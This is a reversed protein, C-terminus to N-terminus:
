LSPSLWIATQLEMAPIEEGNAEETIKIALRGGGPITVESGPGWYDYALRTVPLQGGIPEEFNYLQVWVKAADSPSPGEWTFATFDTAYLPRPANPLVMEVSKLTPGATGLGSVPAWLEIDSSTAPINTHSVMANGYAGAPKGGLSEADEAEYAFGAEEAREARSSQAARDASAAHDASTAFAASPVTGLSSSNVKAGAVAGDVLKSTTISSDAIKGEAIAGNKIKATSVAENKLQRAGVSNRPTQTAAYSVGGLAIFLAITAVVNGYTLKVRFRGMGAETLKVFISM